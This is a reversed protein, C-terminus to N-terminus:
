RAHTPAKDDRAMALGIPWRRRQESEFLPHRLPVQSRPMAQGLVANLAYYLGGLELPHRIHVCATSDTFVKAGFRVLLSIPLGVGPVWNVIDRRAAKYVVLM